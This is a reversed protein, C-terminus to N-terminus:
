RSRYVIRTRRGTPRYGSMPPTPAAPQHTMHSRFVPDRAPHFPFPSPTGGAYPYPHAPYPMVGPTPVPYPVYPPATLQQRRLDIVQSLLAAQQSQLDRARRNQQITGILNGVGGMIAVANDVKPNGASADRPAAFTAASVATLAILTNRTM